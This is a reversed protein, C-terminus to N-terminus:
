RSFLQEINPLAIGFLDLEFGRELHCGTTRTDADRAPKSRETDMVTTDRHCHRHGTTCARLGVMGHGCPHINHTSAAM